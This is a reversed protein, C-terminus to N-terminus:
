SRPCSCTGGAHTDKNTGSRGQAVKRGRERNRGLQKPGKHMFLVWALMWWWIVVWRGYRCADLGGLLAEALAMSSMAPAHEGHAKGTMAPAHKGHGKGTMNPSPGM